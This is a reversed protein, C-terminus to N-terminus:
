DYGIVDKYRSNLHVMIRRPAPLEYTRALAERASAPPETHSGVRQRWWARAKHRAFEHEADFHLDHDFKHFGCFYSARLFSPKSNRTRLTYAVTSVDFWEHVPTESAVMIEASSASAEIHTERSFVFGCVDCVRVGAPHYAGCQDCIRVPADGDAPGRQKPIFPDNFPGCRQTNGAFDLVRCNLKGPHVRTGRGRMQVLRGPSNTLRMEAILDIRPDNYGKVLVGDNVVVRYQGARHAALADARGTKMKSHVGIAPVGYDNFADVVHKIHEVGQAFVLWAARNEELGYVITERVCADVLAPRDVARQAESEIFEGGRRGVGEASLRSEPDIAVLKCLYGEDVLRNIADRGTIDHVVHTFIGGNTLKGMGLRYPTATWGIVVMRPNHRRLEFIFVNYMADDSDGLMHAEDIMLFDVHGFDEARKWVTQISAFTVPWRTDYQNLGAACIGAPAAPWCGKLEAHNQAVLEQADTAIVVRAQPWRQLMGMVTRAIGFAKGTGTPWCVLPNGQEGSTLFDFLAAIGETQYWREILM